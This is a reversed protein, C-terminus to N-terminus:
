TVILAVEGLAISEVDRNSMLEGVVIDGVFLQLLRCALALGSAVEFGHADRGPLVCERRLGQSGNVAHHAVVRIVEVGVRLGSRDFDELLVTKALAVEVGAQGRVAAMVLPLEACLGVVSEEVLIEAIEDRIRRM